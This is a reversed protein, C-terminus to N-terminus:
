PEEKRKRKPSRCQLLLLVAIGTYILHDTLLRIIDPLM